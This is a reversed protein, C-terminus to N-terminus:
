CHLSFQFRVTHKSCQIAKDNLQIFSFASRPDGVYPRQAQHLELSNKIWGEPEGAGDVASRPQLGASFATRVIM